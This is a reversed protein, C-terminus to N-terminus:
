FVWPVDSETHLKLIDIGKDKYKEISAYIEEQYIYNAILICDPRSTSIEEPSCVPVGCNKTGWLAPNSDFMVVEFPLNEYLSLMEKYVVASYGAGPYIGVKAYRRKGLLAILRERHAQASFGVRVMREYTDHVAGIINLHQTCKRECAGCGICPNDVSDPFIQFDSKLKRFLHINSLIDKQTRGYANESSFLLANRSQMIEYIPVDKPCGDCYRCGTCFGEVQKFGANVRLVRKEPRELSPMRVASLNEELQELSSVGSLLVQVAPQAAVYRLAAQVTSEGKNQAFSFFQPNQPILGGGLPNMISVGIGCSEAADLVESMALCNLLSYSITVGEFAGSRIIKVIDTAKAHTSFCIHDIIGQAKLKLAGEYIGGKALSDAFEEYSSIGWIVFYSAHNIGLAYLSSECRRMADDSTSDMSRSCKITVNYPLNTRSFARKLVTQALGRSYTHSVDIYRVGRELACLVIKVSREIGYEDDIGVIPFRNTGLGLPFLGDFITM